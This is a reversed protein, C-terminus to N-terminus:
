ANVEELNNFKNQENVEEPTPLDNEESNTPNNIFPENQNYEDNNMLQMENSAINNINTVNTVNTINTINTISTGGVFINFKKRLVFKYLVIVLIIFAISSFVIILIMATKSSYKELNSISKPEYYKSFNGNQAYVMMLCKQTFCEENIGLTITTKDNKGKGKKTSKSYLSINNKFFEKFFSFNYLSSTDNYSTIIANYEMEEDAFNEIIYNLNNKEQQYSFSPNANILDNINEYNTEMLVFSVSIKGNEDLDNIISLLQNGLNKKPIIDYYSYETLEKYKESGFAFSPINSNYKNMQLLIYKKEPLKEELNFNFEGTKLIDYINNPSLTKLKQSYLYNYKIPSNPKLITYFENEENSNVAKLNKNYPNSIIIDIYSNASINMYINCDPLSIFNQSYFGSILCIKTEFNNKNKLTIRVKESEVQEKDYKLISYKDQSLEYNIRNLENFDFIKDDKSIEKIIEFLVAGKGLGNENIKFTPTDDSSDLIRKEGIEIDSFEDKNNKKYQIKIGSLGVIKLIKLQCKKFDGYNEFTYKKELKESNEPFIFGIFRNNYGLLGIEKNNDNKDFSYFNALAPSKKCSIAFIDVEANIIEYPHKNISFDNKDPFIDEIGKVNKSFIVSENIYYFDIIGEINNSFSIKAKEKEQGKYYTIFYYTKSCEEVTQISYIKDKFIESRIGNENFTIINKSSDQFKFELFSNEDYITENYDNENIMLIIFNKETKLKNKTEKTFVFLKKEIKIATNESKDLSFDFKNGYYLIGSIDNLNSYFLINQNQEFIVKNEDIYYIGLEGSNEKIIDKLKKNWNKEEIENVPVREVSIEDLYNKDGENKFKLEFEIQIYYLNNNKVMDELNDELSFYYFTRNKSDIIKKNANGKIIISKIILEKNDLYSFKISSISDYNNNKLSYKYVNIKNVLNKDNNNIKTYFKYIGSTYVIWNTYNNKNIKFGFEKGLNDTLDFYIIRFNPDNQSTYKLLYKSEKNIKLSYYHEYKSIKLSEYIKNSPIISFTKYIEVEQIKSSDSGKWFINLLGEEENTINYKITEDNEEDLISIQPNNLKMKIIFYEMPIYDYYFRRSSYFKIAKFYNIQESYGFITIYGKTKIKSNVIFKELNQADFKENESCVNEITFNQYFVSSNLIKFDYYYNVNIAYNPKLIFFYYNSCGKKEHPYPNFQVKYPFMNKDMIKFNFSNTTIFNTKYNYNSYINDKSNYLKFRLISKIKHETYLMLQNDTNINSINYNENSKCSFTLFIELDKFLKFEISDYHYEGFTQIFLSDYNNINTKLPMIYFYGDYDNTNNIDKSELKTANIKYIKRFNIYTNYDSSNIILYLYDSDVLKGKANNKNYIMNYDVSLNGYSSFNEKREHCSYKPPFSLYDIDLYDQYLCKQNYNYYSSFTVKNYFYFFDNLNKDYKILTLDEGIKLEEKLSNTIINKIINKSFARKIIVGTLTKENNNLIIKTKDNVNKCNGRIIKKNNDLTKQIGECDIININYENSNARGLFKIEYNFNIYPNDFYIIIEEGKKPFLRIEEGEKLKGTYSTNIKLINQYFAIHNYFQPDKNINIKIHTIIDKGLYSCDNLSTIVKKNFSFDDENIFEYITKVNINDLVIMEADFDGYLEHFTISYNKVNEGNNAIYKLTQYINLISTENAFYSKRVISEKLPLAFEKIFYINKDIFKIDLTYEEILPNYILITYYNTPTTSDTRELDPNSPDIFFLRMDFYTKYNSYYNQRPFNYNFNYIDMAQYRSSYILINKNYKNLEEINFLYYGLEGRQYNKFLNESNVIDKRSFLNIKYNSFSNGKKLETMLLVAKYGSFGGCNYFSSSIDGKTIEKRYCNGQFSTGIKNYVYNYDNSELPLYYLYSYSNVNNLIQILLEDGERMKSCDYYFYYNYNVATSTYISMGEKIKILENSPFQFLIEYVYSNKYEIQFQIYYSYGSLLKFYSNYKYYSVTTSNFLEGNLKNKYIYIKISNTSFKYNMNLLIDKSLMPIYFSINNKYPGGIKFYECNKSISIEPIYFTNFIVFEGTYEPDTGDSVISIVAYYYGPKLYNTNSNDSNLVIEYNMKDIQDLSTSYISNFFEGTEQDYSILDDIKDSVDNKSYYVFFKTSYLPIKSFRFVIDYKTIDDENKFSYIIYKSNETLNFTNVTHQTTSIPPTLSFSLSFNLIIITLTVIKSFLYQSM